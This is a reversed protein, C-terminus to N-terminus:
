NQNLLRIAQPFLLIKRNGQTLGNRKKAVREIILFLLNIYIAQMM